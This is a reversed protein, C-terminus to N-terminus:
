RELKFRLKVSVEIQSQTMGAPFIPLQV